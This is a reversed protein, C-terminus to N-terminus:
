IRYLTLSRQQDGKEEIQLLFFSTKEKKLTEFISLKEGWEILILNGKKLFQNLHLDSIEKGTEIRYLDLHYINNVPPQDILYEDILVFTPSSFQQGFMEGIGKAFVTKGSGLDGRLIVIAAGQGLDKELHSYYINKAIEKTEGENDSEYRAVLKPNLLGERLVEIEDKTLRVVTSTPKKTLKGADVVLDIMAMKKQSLTKLFSDISYHPGKGSLNASTATIPFSSIKTLEQILPHDIVRIGITKDEPEIQRCTEGKSKLVLTFPGPLLTKIIKKQPDSTIAYQDIDKIRNLFVSIGKGFRRGKFDLIKKVAKPSNANVALGYATDSPVVALGDNELVKKILKALKAIKMENLKVAKM